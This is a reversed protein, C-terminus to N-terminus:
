SWPDLDDNPILGWSKEMHKGLRVDTANEKLLVLAEPFKQAELLKSIKQAYKQELDVIYVVAHRHRNANARMFLMQLMPMGSNRKKNQLVAIADMASKSYFSEIGHADALGFYEPM